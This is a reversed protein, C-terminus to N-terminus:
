TIQVYTEIYDKSVLILKFKGFKRNM